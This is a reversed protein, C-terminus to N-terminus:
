DAYGGDVFSRFIRIEEAPVDGEDIWIAAPSRNKETTSARPAGNRRVEVIFGTRHPKDDFGM